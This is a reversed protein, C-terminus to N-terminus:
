AIFRAVLSRCGFGRGVPERSRRFSTLFAVIDDHRNSDPSVSARPNAQDDFVISPSIHITVTGVSFSQMPRPRQLLHIYKTGSSVFYNM